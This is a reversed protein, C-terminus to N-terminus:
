GEWGGEVGGFCLLMKKEERNIYVLLPLCNFMHQSPINRLAEDPQARCFACNLPFSKSENTFKLLLQRFQESMNPRRWRSCAPVDSSAPLSSFLCLSGFFLSCSFFLPKSRGSFIHTPREKNGCSINLIDRYCVPHHFACTLM